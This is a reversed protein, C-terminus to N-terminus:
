IVDTLFTSLIVLLAMILTIAQVVPYDRSSVAEVLLAGVGPVGFVNEVIVTGSVLFALNVGFVPILALLANPLLHSRYFRFRSVGHALLTEVFDSQLITSVSARLTRILVTAFGIAITAAPLVLHYIQDGITTGFGYIPFWHLKLGFVLLLM